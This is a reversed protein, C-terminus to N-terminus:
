CVCLSETVLYSSEKQTLPFSSVSSLVLSLSPCPVAALLRTVSHVKSKTDGANIDQKEAFSNLFLFNQCSM